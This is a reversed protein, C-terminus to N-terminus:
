HWKGVLNKTILDQADRKLFVTALEIIKKNYEKITFEVFGTRRLNTTFKWAGKTPSGQKIITQRIKWAIERSEEEGSAIGKIMIWNMLASVPVATGKPLGQEMAKAYNNAYVLVKDGQVEYRMTDVLSGSAVHGQNILEERLKDVIFQGILELGSSKM